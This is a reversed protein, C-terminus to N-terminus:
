DTSPAVLALSTLRRVPGPASYSTTAVSGGSVAIVTVPPSTICEDWHLDIPLETPDGRFPDLATRYCELLGCRWALWPVAVAIWATSSRSAGRSSPAAIPVIGETAVTVSM